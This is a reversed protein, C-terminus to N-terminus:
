KSEKLIQKTKDIEFCMDILLNGHLRNKYMEAYKLMVKLQQELQQNYEVAAKCARNVMKRQEAAPVSEISFLKKAIIEALPHNGKVESM